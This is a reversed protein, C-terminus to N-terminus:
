LPQIYIAMLRMKAVSYGQTTRKKLKIIQKDHLHSSVKSLMIGLIITFRNTGLAGAPFNYTKFESSLHNSVIKFVSM